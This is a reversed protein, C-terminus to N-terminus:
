GRFTILDRLNSNHVAYRPLSSFFILLDKTPIEDASSFVQAYQIADSLCVLQKKTAKEKIFGKFAPTKLLDDISTKDLFRKTQAKTFLDLVIAENSRKDESIDSSSNM